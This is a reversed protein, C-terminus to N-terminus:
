KCRIFVCWADRSVTPWLVWCASPHVATGCRRGLVPTEGDQVSPTPPAPLPKHPASPPTMVHAQCSQTTAVIRLGLLGSLVEERPTDAASFSMETKSRRSRLFGGGLSGSHLMGTLAVVILLQMMASFLEAPKYESGIKAFRM